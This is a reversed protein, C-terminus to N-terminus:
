YLAKAGRNEAPSALGNQTASPNVGNGVCEMSAALKRGAPHYFLSKITIVIIIKFPIGEPREPDAIKKFM